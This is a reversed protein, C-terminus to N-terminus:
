PKLAAIFKPVLEFLDGVIPVVKPWARRENLTM